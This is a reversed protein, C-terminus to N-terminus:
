VSNEEEEVVAISFRDENRKRLCRLVCGGLVLAGAMLAAALVCELPAQISPALDALRRSEKPFSSLAELASMTKQSASMDLTEIFQESSTSMFVTKGNDVETVTLDRMDHAMWWRSMASMCTNNNKIVEDCRSPLAKLEAILSDHEPTGIKVNLVVGKLKHHTYVKKYRYYDTGSDTGCYEGEYSYESYKLGDCGEFTIKGDTRNIKIHTFDRAIVYEQEQKPSPAPIVRSPQETKLKILGDKKKTIKMTRTDNLEPSETLYQGQIEVSSSSGM